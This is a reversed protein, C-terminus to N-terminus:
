VLLVSFIYGFFDPYIRYFKRTSTLQNQMISKSIVADTERKKSVIKCVTRSPQEKKKKRQEVLSRRGTGGACWPGYLPLGTSEKGMGAWCVLPYLLASHAGQFLWSYRMPSSGLFSSPNSKRQWGHCLMRGVSSGYSLFDRSSRGLRWWSSTCSSM